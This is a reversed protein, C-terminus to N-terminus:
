RTAFIPSRPNLEIARHLSVRADVIRGLKTEIRAAVLWLRWDRRDRSIAKSISGHADSLRGDEEQVLALQLYPSSAWPELRKAARAANVAAALDGRRAAAQSDDVKTSAALLDAAGLLPIAALVALVLRLRPSSQPRSEATDTAPGVSLALTAMGIVSVATLQWMWDLGAAIAFAAFAAIVAAATAREGPPARLARRVGVAIGTGLTAVLLLLGVIGLEGLVEPYLSHANRVFGVTTGREAWWAEFSAAGGGGWPHREFEHASATWYQWRWNGNASLFHSKIYAENAAVPPPETFSHWRAVPHAAMAAGAVAVILVVAVIWGAVRPTSTRVHKAALAYVVAVCAAAAAVAFAVRHGQAAATSTELPGDVFQHQRAVYAVAGVAGAVGVAAAAAARWRNEALVVFAAVGAVATAAGTRSSALYIVVAIVPLPALAL